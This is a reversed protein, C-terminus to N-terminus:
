QQAYQSFDLNFPFPTKCGSPTLVMVKYTDGMGHPHHDTSAVLRAFGDELAEV